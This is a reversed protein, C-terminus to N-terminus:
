VDPTVYLDEDDAYGNWNSPFPPPLPKTEVGTPGVSLPAAHIYICNKAVSAICSEGYQLYFNPKPVVVVVVTLLLRTLNLQSRSHTLSHTLSYMNLVPRRNPPARFLALGRSFGELTETNHNFCLATFFWYLSVVSALTTGCTESQEKRHSSLQQKMVDVCHLHPLM